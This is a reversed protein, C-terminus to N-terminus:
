SVMWEWWMWRRLMAAFCAAAPRCAPAPPPSARWACPLRSSVRRRDLDAAGLLQDASCGRWCASVESILFRENEDADPFLESESGGGSGGEAAGGTSNRGPGRGGGATRRKDPLFAKPQQNQQQQELASGSVSALLLQHQSRPAELLTGAAGAAAAALQQRLAAAHHAIGEAAARCRSVIGPVRAKEERGGSEAAQLRRSKRLAVLM